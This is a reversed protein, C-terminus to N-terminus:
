HVSDPKPDRGGESDLGDGGPSAANIIEYLEQRTFEALTRNDNVNVDTTQQPKGDIRDGFEKIASIDGQIALEVTKAAIKHLKTTDGDERSAALMLADAWPKTKPRGGPNGSKGKAFPM